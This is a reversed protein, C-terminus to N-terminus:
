HAPDPTSAAPTNSNRWDQLEMFRAKCNQTHSMQSGSCVQAKEIAYRMDRSAALGRNTGLIARLLTEKADERRQAHLDAGM